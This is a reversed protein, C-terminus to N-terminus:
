ELDALRQRAREVQLRRQVADELDERALVAGDAAQDREDVLAAVDADLGGVADGLPRPRDAILEAFPDGSTDDLAALRDDHRLDAAFRRHQVARRPTGLERMLFQAED